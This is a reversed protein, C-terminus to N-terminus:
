LFHEFLWFPVPMCAHICVQAHVCAHLHGHLQTPAPWAHTTLVVKKLLTSMSLEFKQYSRKFTTMADLKEQVEELFGKFKPNEEVKVEFELVLDEIKAYKKCWQEFETRDRLKLSCLM